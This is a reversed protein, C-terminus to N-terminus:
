YGGDKNNSNEVYENLSEVSSVEDSGVGGEIDYGSDHILVKCGKATGKAEVIGESQLRAFIRGARTFGFGFERQIKSISAYEQSMVM